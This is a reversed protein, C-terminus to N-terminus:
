YYEGYEHVLACEESKLRFLCKGMREEPSVPNAVRCSGTCYAVEIFIKLMWRNRCRHSDMSHSTTVLRDSSGMPRLCDLMSIFELGPTNSGCLDFDSFKRKGLSPGSIQQAKGWASRICELQLSYLPYRGCLARTLISVNACLLRAGSERGQAPLLVLGLTFFLNSALENTNVM